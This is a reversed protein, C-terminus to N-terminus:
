LCVKSKFKKFVRAIAGIINFSKTMVNFYGRTRPSISLLLYYAVLYSIVTAWAAGIAGYQPIFILNLLVNTLAAVAHNILSFHYVGENLIWKSFLARSFVLIGGFIHISLINASELYESGFLVYIIENSLVLMVIAIIFGIAVLFDNIEQLRRQYEVQSSEKAKILKPFYSAAIINPLFYWVESLRVAVSYIGVESDGRMEAIMFQDIKLCIVSAITSFLLWKSKKALELAYSINVAGRKTNFRSIKLALVYWLALAAPELIATYFFYDLPAESVLLFCKIAFFVTANSIRAFVSYKSEVKAQFLFDFLYFTSSLASVISLRIWYNDISTVLSFQAIALLVISFFLAGVFRVFLSTAIVDSKNKSKLYEKIFIANVGIPSMLVVMSNISILLSLKGFESPGLYRALMVNVVLVLFLNIGKESMLWLINKNEKSHLQRILNM